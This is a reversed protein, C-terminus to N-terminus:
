EPFVGLGFAAPGRVERELYEAAPVPGYGERGLRDQISESESTTVRALTVLAFRFKEALVQPVAPVAFDGDDGCDAELIRIVAALVELGQLAIGGFPDARRLVLLLDVPPLARRVLDPTHSDHLSRFPPRPIFRQPLLSCSLLMHTPKRSQADVKLQSKLGPCSVTLGRMVPYLAVRRSRRWPRGGRWGRRPRLPM